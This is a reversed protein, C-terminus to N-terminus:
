MKLSDKCFTASSFLKLTFECLFCNLLWVIKISDRSVLHHCWCPWTSCCRYPSPFHFCFCCSPPAVVLCTDVRGAACVCNAVNKWVSLSSVNKLWYFRFQFRFRFQVLWRTSSQTCAPYCYSCVEVGVCVSLCSVPAGVFVGLPLWTSLDKNNYLQVRYSIIQGMIGARVFAVFSSRISRTDAM